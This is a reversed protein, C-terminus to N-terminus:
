RAANGGICVHYTVLKSLHRTRARHPDCSLVDTMWVATTGVTVSNFGFHAVTRELLLAFILLM